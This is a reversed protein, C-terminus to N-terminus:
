RGQGDFALTRRIGEAPTTTPRWATLDRLRDVSVASLRMEEYHRPIAGYRLWDAPM